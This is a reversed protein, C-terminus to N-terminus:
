RRGLRLIAADSTLVQAPNSGPAFVAAQTFVSRGVLSNQVPIPLDFRAEGAAVPLLAQLEISVALQCGTLGFPSLNIPLPTGLWTTNSLGVLGVAATGGALSVRQAVTEGLWPLMIGGQLRPGNTGCPTAFNTYGAANATFVEWTDDLTQGLTAGEGGFLVGRERARDYAFAPVDRAAPAPLVSVDQWASGVRDWEYVRQRPYQDFALTRHRAAHYILVPAITSPGTPTNVLTWTRQARDWEWVDRQPAGAFLFVKGTLEDYTIGSHQRPAPSAAPALRTWTKNVTDYDWTDSVEIGSTDVGGFLLLHGPLGDYTFMASDRPTPSTAPFRQTWVTGDWEWTDGLWASGTWGGFLVALRQTKDYALSFAGRAPPKPGQIARQTWTASAGDWEWTEDSPNALNAFRDRGGYGGFLLTKATHDQYVMQHVFRPSPRTAPTHQQWALQAFVVPSLLTLAVAARRAPFSASM